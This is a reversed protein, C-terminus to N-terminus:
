PEPKRGDSIDTIASEIESLCESCLVGRNQIFLGENAIIFKRCLECRVRTVPRGSVDAVFEVPVGRSLQGSAGALRAEDAM